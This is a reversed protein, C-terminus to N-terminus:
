LKVVSVIDASSSGIHVECGNQRVWGRAPDYISLDRETFAFSIKDIDGPRLGRTKKFGRLVLDPENAEAPFHIYAQVTEVGVRAGNNRVKISVCAAGACTGGTSTEPTAYEFTTYSLGHGFPFAAKLKKSRYSTFLGEAYVANGEEPEIVDWATAPFMIPLKGAPPQDGFLVSAWANGTQEGGLFLNAIASVDNRWPTLVAGPTQMLVATPKLPAIEAILDAVGGDLKLSDRDKGESATTAGVILVADSNNAITKAKGKPDDSAFLVVKMGALEARAKIGAYPTVVHGSAVHGSGGGAYYDAEFGVGSSPAANAAKGLIALTKVKTPDLPLMGGENKLLVISRRAARSALETSEKSRVNALMASMCKPPQCGNSKDLRMKYIVSLVRVVAEDTAQPYRVMLQTALFLKDGGMGGGPMDQDLGTTVAKTSHTAGWDSMVFGRFGMAGKLDRKLIGSNECASTGNVKNYSCMFAGVDAEVAAAFPPYYLEWATRADVNSSSANKGGRNTEQENFAYHKATAIVGQSQVGRIFPKVMRAGLYPDEGSMYEFNRGNRAVRHVNVSPGLMVNAGKQSFEHGMAGGVQEILIEDWTAALALGCPWMTTSGVSGPVYTRFGNGADQMTLSPISFREIPQTNGVYWGPSYSHSGKVISGKEDPTLEKVTQEAREKAEEWSIPLNGPRILVGSALSLSAALVKM